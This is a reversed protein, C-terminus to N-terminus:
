DNSRRCSLRTKRPYFTTQEETSCCLAVRPQHIPLNHSGGACSPVKLPERDTGILLTDSASLCVGHSWQFHDAQTRDEETHISYSIEAVSLLAQTKKQDSIIVTCDDEASESGATQYHSGSACLTGPLAPTWDPLRKWTPAAEGPEKHPCVQGSSWSPQPHSFLTPHHKNDKNSLSDIGALFNDKAMASKCSSLIKEKKSIM